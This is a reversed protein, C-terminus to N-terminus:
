LLSFVSKPEAKKKRGKCESDLKLSSILESKKTSPFYQFKINICQLELEPTLYRNWKRCFVFNFGLTKIKRFVNLCDYM